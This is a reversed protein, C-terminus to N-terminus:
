DDFYGNQLWGHWHTTAGNTEFWHISPTLTPRGPEGSLTWFESSGNAVLPLVASKSCLGCPCRLHFQSRDESVFYAGPPGAVVASPSGVLTARVGAPNPAPSLPNGHSDGGCGPLLLAAGLLWALRRSPRVWASM